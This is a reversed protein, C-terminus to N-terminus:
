AGMTLLCGRATTVIRESRVILFTLWSKGSSGSNRWNKPPRMGRLSWRLTFAPKAGTDDDSRVTVNEGIMVNDSSGVM